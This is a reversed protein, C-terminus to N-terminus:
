EGGSTPPSQPSPSLFGKKSFIINVGGKSKGMLSSPILSPTEKMKFPKDEQVM